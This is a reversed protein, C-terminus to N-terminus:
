ESVEDEHFRSFQCKRNACFQIFRGDKGCRDCPTVIRDEEDDISPDLHLFALMRSKGCQRCNGLHSQRSWRSCKDGNHNRTGHTRANLRWAVRGSSQSRPYRKKAHMRRMVRRILQEQSVRYMDSGTFAHHRKKHRRDKARNSRRKHRHKRTVFRTGSENKRTTTDPGVGQTQPIVQHVVSIYPIVNM